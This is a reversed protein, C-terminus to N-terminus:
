TGTFEKNIAEIENNIFSTDFPSNMTKKIDHMPKNKHKLARTRSLNLIFYINFQLARSVTARM